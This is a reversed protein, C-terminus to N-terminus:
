LTPRTPNNAIYNTMLNAYDGFFTVNIANGNLDELHVIVKPTPTGVKGIFTTPKESGTIYGIIDVTKFEHFKNNNMDEFSAFTFGYSEGLFDYVEVVDTEHTFSVKNPNGMFKNTARNEALSAKTILITSNLEILTKFKLWYENIISGMM